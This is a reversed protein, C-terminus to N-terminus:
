ATSVRRSTAIPSLASNDLINLSTLSDQICTSASMTPLLCRIQASSSPAHGWIAYSSPYDNRDQIRGQEATWTWHSDGVRGKRTTVLIVGNAANTGYVSSAAPGKVIEISEIEDPSFSSLM